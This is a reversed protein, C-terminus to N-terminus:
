KDGRTIFIRVIVAIASLVMLFGVLANDRGVTLMVCLCLQSLVFNTLSEKM